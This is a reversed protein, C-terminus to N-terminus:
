FQGSKCVIALYKLFEHYNIASGAVCGGRGASVITLHISHTPSLTSLHYFLCLLRNLPRVQFSKDAVSIAIVRSKKPPAPLVFTYRSYNIDDSDDAMAPNKKNGTGVMWWRGTEMLCLFLYRTASKRIKGIVELFNFKRKKHCLNM